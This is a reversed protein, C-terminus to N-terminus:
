RAATATDGGPVAFTLSAWFSAWDAVATDTSPVMHVAKVLWVGGQPLTLSVRGSADTRAAVKASPDRRNLAVVLAGALPQKEYLLQVPLTDGPAMMYPNKGAVLELTLGLARDTQAASPPGTLLLSKACRAFVERAPATSHGAARRAAAVADLGEEELYQNFKDPTLTMPTPTSRYGVIALGPRTLRLLGAPDDGDRGIVPRTGAADVVVFQEILAPDRPIADGLFDVGVKLRVGVLAGDAPTFATPEIWMDHAHVAAGAALAAALTVAGAARRIRDTSIQM